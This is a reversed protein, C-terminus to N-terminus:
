KTWDEIQLGPVRAFEKSNHTILVAGAARSTAAIVLDAPEIVKGKKDLQGRIGAYHEVADVAFPLLEYPELFAQVARSVASKNASKSVGYLLEAHVM